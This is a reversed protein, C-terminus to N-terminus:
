KGRPSVITFGVASRGVLGSHSDTLILELTYRGPKLHTPLEFEFGMFFDRRRNRCHEETPAFEHEAVKNGNSDFIEIRARSATHYGQPTTESRLNEVEVYLLVRQGAQFKCSEFPTYVGYSQIETVFTLNRLVPSCIRRLAAVSEDFHRLAEAQRAQQDSLLKPDLLLWLGYVLSSWFEESEPSSAGPAQLAADRQDLCLYLLRLRGTLAAKQEANSAHRLCDELVSIAEQVLPRWAAESKGTETPSQGRLDSLGSRGELNATSDATALRNEDEPVASFSEKEGAGALPVGEFLTGGHDEGTSLQPPRPAQTGTTANAAFDPTAPAM